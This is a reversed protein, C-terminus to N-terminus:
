QTARASRLAQRAVTHTRVGERWRWGRGTQKKATGEVFATQRERDRGRAVGTLASGVRVTRM